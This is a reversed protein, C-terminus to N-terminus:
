EVGLMNKLIHVVLGYFQPDSESRQELAKEKAKKWLKEVEEESKGSRKAFSSVVAATENLEALFLIAKM